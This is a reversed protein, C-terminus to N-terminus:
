AYRMSTKNTREGALQASLYRMRIGSHNAADRVSPYVTGSATDVVRKASTSLGGLRKGKGGASQRARTEASRRKGYLPHKEGSLAASIRARTEAPTKHGVMSLRRKAKTAASQQHGAMGEGGDTMNVLTGTGNSRRGNKAILEREFAFAEPESAFTAIIEVHCGHKAAVALWMRGRRKMEYARAYKKAKTHTGKGIYFTEGADTRHGYIYFHDTM